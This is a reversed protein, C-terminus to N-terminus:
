KGGYSKHYALIAELFDVYNKFTHEIKTEDSLVADHAISMIEKFNETKNKEARKALYALKPKLLYFASKEKLIGKMQIRKVEGFFNRIQSTTMGDKEGGGVLFKGFDNCFDLTKPTFGQKIWDPNFESVYNRENRINRNGYNKQFSM